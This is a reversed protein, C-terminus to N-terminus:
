ATPSPSAILRIDQNENAQYSMKNETYASFSPTLTRQRVMQRYGMM